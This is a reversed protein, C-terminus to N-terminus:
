SPESPEVGCARIAAAAAAHVAVEMDAAMQALRAAAEPNEQLYRTLAAEDASGDMETMEWVTSDVLGDSPRDSISRFVTWQAGRAECVAAVAATEMDLAIYGDALLGTLVGDDTLFDDGCRIKGRATHGGLVAPAYTNGTGSHLVAEPVLVDGIEQGPEIGGAIGVVIVYDVPGDDLIRHTADTAASMGIGTMTAVFEVGGVTADHLTYPDDSRPELGLMTVLPALEHTMPALLGVRTPKETM